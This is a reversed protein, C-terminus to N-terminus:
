LWSSGSVLRRFGGFTRGVRASLRARCGEGPKPTRFTPPDTLGPLEEGPTGIVPVTLGVDDAVRTLGAAAAAAAGAILNHGCGHGIGEDLAGYEACVAGHLPGDGTTATLAAPLDGAGMRVTFGERSLLRTIRGAAYAEAFALEPHEHIDHALGVFTGPLESIIAHVRGKVAVAPSGPATASM